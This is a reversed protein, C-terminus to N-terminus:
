EIGMVLVNDMIRSVSKRIEILQSLTHPEIDLEYKRGLADYKAVGVTHYPLLYTTEANLSELYHALQRLHNEDDNIGPILPVRIWVRKGL